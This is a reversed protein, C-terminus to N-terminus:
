ECNEKWWHNWQVFGKREWFGWERRKRFRFV